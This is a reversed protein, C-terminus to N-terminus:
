YDARWQVRNIRTTNTNSSLLRKWALKTVTRAGEPVTFAILALIFYLYVVWVSFYKLEYKFLSISTCYINSVNWDALRLCFGAYWKLFDCINISCFVFSSYWNSTNQILYYFLGCLAQAPNRGCNYCIVWVGYVLVNGPTIRIHCRRPLGRHAHANTAVRHRYDLYIICPCTVCDDSLVNMWSCVYKKRDVTNILYKSFQNPDSVRLSCFAAPSPWLVKEM